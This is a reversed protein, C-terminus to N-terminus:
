KLKLFLYKLLKDINADRYLEISNKYIKEHEPYPKQKGINFKEKCKSSNMIHINIIESVAWLINENKKGTFAPFRAFVYDYFIFHLMEHIITEIIGVRKYYAQFIKNKIDRPNCNWISLYCKYVGKPFPHCNFYEEAFCFFEDSKRDWAKESAVKAKLIDKLHTKYYSATYSKLVCPSIRGKKKLEPHSNLIGKEFFSFGGFKIKRFQCAIKYDLKEDLRFLLKPHNM